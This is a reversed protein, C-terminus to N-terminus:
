CRAEGRELLSGDAEPFKAKLAKVTADVTTKEINSKEVCTTKTTTENPQCAAIFLATCVFLFLKKM